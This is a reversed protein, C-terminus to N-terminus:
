LEMSKKTLVIKEDNCCVTKETYNIITNGFIRVNNQSTIRNERRIHAVIRAELESISFPKTIYDDGGSAFGNIKDSDEVRATLFM